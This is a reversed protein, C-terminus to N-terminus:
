VNIDYYLIHIAKISTVALVSTTLYQHNDNKHRKSNEWGKVSLIPYSFTQKTWLRWKPLSENEDESAVAKRENCRNSIKYVMLQQGYTGLVIEPYGDGDIDLIACANVSDFDSSNELMQTEKELELQKEKNTIDIYIASRELSPVVILNLIALGPELTSPISFFKAHHIGGIGAFDLDEFLRLIEAKQPDVQFVQLQGDQCGVASWRNMVHEREHYAFSVSVAPSPTMQAFEPFLHMMEEDEIEDFTNANSSNRRYAHILDDSGSLLLVNEYKEKESLKYVRCHTLCYPIFELQFTALSKLEVIPVHNTQEEHSISSIKNTFGEYIKLYFEKEYQEDEALNM